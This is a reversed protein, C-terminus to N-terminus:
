NSSPSTDCSSSSFKISASTSLGLTCASITNMIYRSSLRESDYSQIDMETKTCSLFFILTALLCSIKELAMLRSHSFRSKRPDEHLLNNEHTRVKETKRRIPHHMDPEDGPVVEELISQSSRDIVFDVKKREKPSLPRNVPKLHVSFEAM